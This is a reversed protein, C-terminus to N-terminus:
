RGYNWQSEARSKETRNALRLTFEASIIMRSGHIVPNRSDKMNRNVRKPPNERAPASPASIGKFDWFAL